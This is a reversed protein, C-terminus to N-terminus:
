GEQPYSSQNIVLHRKGGDQEWIYITAVQSEGNDFNLWLTNGSIKYTGKSDSQSLASVDRTSVAGSKNLKFTGDNQFVLTHVSSVNPLVTSAAYQGSLKYNAAVPKPRSVIGADIATIDGGKHELSWETTKGNQWTINMQNGTIKFQGVNDKNNALEATYNIPNVGNKPNVVITGDNGLFIWKLELSSGYMSTWMFTRFYLKGTSTSKGSLTSSQPKNKVSSQNLPPTPKAAPLKKETNVENDKKGNATVPIKNQQQTSVNLTHQNNTSVSKIENNDVAGELNIFIQKNLVNVDRNLPNCKVWIVGNASYIKVIEVEAKSWNVDAKKFLGPLNLNGVSKGFNVFVFDKNNGSGYGLQIIDGVTYTKGLYTVSTENLAAKQAVVGTFSFLIFALFYKKM